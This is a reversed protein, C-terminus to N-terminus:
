LKVAISGTVTRPPGYYGTITNGLTAGPFNYGGVRYHKDTLNKGHLGVEYKGNSSTWVIDLNALTYGSQDLQSPIEFMAYKSRFSSWATFALGGNM